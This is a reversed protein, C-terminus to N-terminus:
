SSSGDHLVQNHKFNHLLASPIMEAGGVHLGVNRPHSSALQRRVQHVGLPIAGEALRERLLQRGTSWTTLVFVVAAVLLPFWGGDAFKTM